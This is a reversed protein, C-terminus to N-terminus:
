HLICVIFLSAFLCMIVFQMHQSPPVCTVTVPTVPPAQPYTPGLLQAPSKACDWVPLALAPAGEQVRQCHGESEWHWRGRPLSCLPAWKHAWLGGCAYADQKETGRWMPQRVGVCNESYPLCISITGGSLPPFRSNLSIFYSTRLSVCTVLPAMAWHCIREM